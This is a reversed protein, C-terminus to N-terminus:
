ESVVSTQQRGDSVQNRLAEHQMQKLKAQELSDSRVEFFEIEPQQNGNAVATGYAVASAMRFFTRDKNLWLGM